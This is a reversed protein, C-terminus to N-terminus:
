TCVATQLGITWHVSGIIIVLSAFSVGVSTLGYIYAHYKRLGKLEAVWTSVTTLCGSFGDEVGQLVQCGIIGGGINGGLSSHQLDYIMGICLTGFVNAAFTGIPFKAIKGNLKLSLHFRLLCGLPAFVLAFVVEGRWRDQPPFIALLVAGLWCGFGLFVALPDTFRSSNIKPVRALIPMTFEAFHAGMSLAALSLGIETILVALVATVSWGPNRPLLSNKAHLDNSLALFADRIFSSFSTYSGCFGVSLGIYLPLTKKRKLDEKPPIPRDKENEKSECEEDIARLIVSGRRPAFIARDEQLFGLVFCGGVNAWLEPMTIPANAYDGLWQTGLRALTGFISFLILYSITYLQTLYHKSTSQGKSDSRSRHSRAENRSRGEELSERHYWNRDDPNEDPPPGAIEDLNEYDNPANGEVGDSGEAAEGNPNQGGKQNSFTNDTSSRRAQQNDSPTHDPSPGSVETM